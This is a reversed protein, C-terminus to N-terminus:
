PWVMHPLMASMWDKVALILCPFLLFFSSVVTCFYLARGYEMPRGYCPLRLYWVEGVNQVGMVEKGASINCRRCEFNEPNRSASAQCISHDRRSCSSIPLQIIVKASFTAAIAAALVALAKFPGSLGWIAGKGKPNQLGAPPPSLWPWLCCACFFQYLDCAHNQLYARPCLCVSVCVCLRVWWLVEGGSGRAFYNVTSIV